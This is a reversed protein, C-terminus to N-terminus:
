QPPPPPAGAKTMNASAPPPPGASKSQGSIGGAKSVGTVPVHGGAPRAASQGPPPPPPAASGHWAAQQPWGYHQQAQVAGWMVGPVALGE